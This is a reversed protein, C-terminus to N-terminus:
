VCIPSSCISDDFESPDAVHRLLSAYMNRTISDGIFVIWQGALLGQLAKQDMRKFGCRKSVDKWYWQGRSDEDCTVLRGEQDEECRLPLSTISVYNAQWTSAFYCRAFAKIM